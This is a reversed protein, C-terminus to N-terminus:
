EGKPEPSTTSPEGLAEALGCICSESYSSRLRNSQCSPHHRGYRRLASELETVRSELGMVYPRLNRADGTMLTEAILVYSGVKPCECHKACKRCNPCGGGAMNGYDCECVDYQKCCPCPCTTNLMSMRSRERPKIEYRRRVDGM